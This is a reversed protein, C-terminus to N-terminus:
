LVQINWTVIKFIDSGCASTLFQIIFSTTAELSTDDFVFGEGTDNSHGCIQMHKVLCVSQFVM